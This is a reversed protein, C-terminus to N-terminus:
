IRFFAFIIDVLHSFKSFPLCSVEVLNFTNLSSASLSKTFSSSILFLHISYKSFSNLSRSHSFRSRNPRSLQCWCAIQESFELTQPLLLKLFSSFLYPTLVLHCRISTHLHRPSIAFTHSV